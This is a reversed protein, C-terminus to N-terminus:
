ERFTTSLPSAPPPTGLRPPNPNVPPLAPLPKNTGSTGPVPPPKAGALRPFLVRNAVKDFGFKALVFGAGAGALPELADPLFGAGTNNNINTAATRDADQDSPSLARDQLPEQSPAVASNAKDLETEVAVTASRIIRERADEQISSLDHEADFPIENKQDEPLSENERRVEQRDRDGKLQLGFSTAGVGLAVLVITGGDVPDGNLTTEVFTRSGNAATERAFVLSANQLPISSIADSSQKISSVIDTTSRTGVTLPVNGAVRGGGRLLSGGPVLAFLDVVFTGLKFSGNALSAVAFAALALGALVLGIVPAVLTIVAILIDVLLRVFPFQSFFDGVKEFFGREPIAKAAALELEDAADQAALDRAQKIQEALSSARGLSTQASLIEDERTAAADREQANAADAPDPLPTAALASVATASRMADDLENQREALNSAYTEYARAAQDFSDATRQLKDPLSKLARRLADMAAGRGSEIEGGTGLVDLARRADDHVDAHRQAFARIADPDGPTPDTAFGLMDFGSSFERPM